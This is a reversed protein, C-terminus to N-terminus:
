ACEGLPQWNFATTEGLLAAAGRPQSRIYDVLRRIGTRVDTTTHFGLLEKALRVDACLRLVDGPSAADIADQLPTGPGHLVAIVSAEVRASTFVTLAAIALLIRRWDNEFM